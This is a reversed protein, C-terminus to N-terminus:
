RKLQSLITSTPSWSPSAYADARKWRERAIRRLHQEKSEKERRRLLWLRLLSRGQRGGSAVTPQVSGM